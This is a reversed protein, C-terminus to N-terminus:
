IEPLIDPNLRIKSLTKFMEHLESMVEEFRPKKDYEICYTTALGNTISKKVIDEWIKLLNESYNRISDNIDERSFYFIQYPSDEVIIDQIFLSISLMKSVKEFLSRTNESKRPFGFCIVGSNNPINDYKETPIVQCIIQAIILGVVYERDEKCLKDNKLIQHLLSPCVPGLIVRDDVKSATMITHAFSPFPNSQKNIHQLEGFVTKMMLLGTTPLKKESVRDFFENMFTETNLYPWVTSVHEEIPSCGIVVKNMVYTIFCYSSNLKNHYYINLRDKFVIIPRHFKSLISNLFIFIEYNRTINKQPKEVELLKHRSM